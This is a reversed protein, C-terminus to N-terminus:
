DPAHGVGKEHQELAEVRKQLELLQRRLQPLRPIVAQAQISTLHPMAPAGSVTQGAGISRNIGSRAAVKVDDGVELHNAVGAQGGVIVRSGIRTSGAVGVQAVLITEEGIQVNHAIQVLNDIKTGRGIRTEGFVARDITVNAGIEVEDEVVVGGLQPVKLNRGEHQVYGFGEAGLVSGPHVIVSRGLRCRDGVVVNPYLICDAGITCDDGVVVGPYLTARDGVTVRDGLTVFPGLSLDAGLTVDEGVFVPERRGRPRPVAPYLEQALRVFVLRPAAVVIQPRELAPFARPVLFAVAQSRQAREVWSETELFCADGAQAHELSSLGTVTAEGSGM